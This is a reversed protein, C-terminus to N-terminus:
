RFGRRARLFELEETTSVRGLVANRHPFRGFRDIIRQHGEAYVALRPIGIGAFLECSLAQMRADESHMFPMYLFQRQHPGLMADLGCDVAHQALDLALGDTAYAQASGRFMNRSFQDFVIVAAVHGRAELSVPNPPAEKMAARLDAFRARIEEDVEPRASFWDGPKLDRFWFHLVADIWSSDASQDM